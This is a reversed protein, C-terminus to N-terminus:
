FEDYFQDYVNAHWPVWVLGFFFAGRGGRLLTKHKQSHATALQVTALMRFPASNTSSTWSSQEKVLLLM